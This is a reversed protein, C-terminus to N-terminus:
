KSACPLLIQIPKADLAIKLIGSKEGFGQFRETRLGTVSEAGESKLLLASDTNVTLKGDAHSLFAMDLWEGEPDPERVFNLQTLADAALAADGSAEWYTM